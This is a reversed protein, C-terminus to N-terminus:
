EYQEGEDELIKEFERIRKNFQRILISATLTATGVCSILYGGWVLFISNIKGPISHGLVAYGNSTFANSVMVLSDLPNVHETAQTALFSLFIISFLLLITVGLRNASTYEMFRDYYYKVFYIFIPVHIFDLFSVINFGFFIDTLSGYPVLLLVLIKNKLPKKDITVAIYLSLFIDFIAFYFYQDYVTIFSYFIDIFSFAMMILYFIQKLTHIEDVPLFEEANLYRNSSSNIRRLIFIGVLTLLLFFVIEFFLQGLSYSVTDMCNVM